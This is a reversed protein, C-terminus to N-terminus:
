LLFLVAPLAVHQLPMGSLDVHATRVCAGLVAQSVTVVAAPLVSQRRVGPGKGSGHLSRHRLAM